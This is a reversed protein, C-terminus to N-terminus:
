YKQAILILRDSSKENFDNLEFDGFIRLIEFGNSVLMKKFDDQKLAQVRETFHFDHGKDTFRIHKFIHSGDYERSINFTIGDVEKVENEILNDIVRQANMFDILFIGKDYLMDHAARIVKINDETNDFYGFSTFLNFIADFKEGPITERMDHVIFELGNQAHKSAESISHSSLDAGLVKYGHKHLTISHRGKGCALDLAYTNNKLGLHRCLKEIFREAEQEDRDRYLTHYYTTDFWEAFWEKKEM